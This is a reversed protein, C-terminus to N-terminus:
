PFYTSSLAGKMASHEMQNMEMPIDEQTDSSSESHNVDRDCIGAQESILYTTSTEM